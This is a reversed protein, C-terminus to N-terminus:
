PSATGRTPRISRCTLEGAKLIALIGVILEPSREACIAVPSGSRVGRVRLRHALRNSQRDLEGYSLSGTEGAVALAAPSRRAQEAFRAHVPRDAYETATENWEVLLQAREEEGLLPLDSLRTGPAACAGALLIEFHRSLRAMTATEFLDRNYEWSGFLGAGGESLSLTLDFKATEGAPPIPELTLGPLVLGERELSQLTFMVQFLPTRSPDRPPSLEEVVREFPVDQHQYAALATRRVASSLEGFPPDGACFTRLVLTNVFFGILGEIERHTRNAIPTGVAIDDQGTLRSLLATVGSLLTMFLTAGAARSLRELDATLGAPLNFRWVRGLERRVPPRQRDTPLELIALGSLTQRWYALEGELIEGVLYSRQWLAFDAYQLELEPLPSPKGAVRSAYLAGLERILVGMSWGDSVIHHMTLLAVHEPGSLRLLGTRLLPGRVLDFPRRAEEAALRRVEEDLAALGSLDLLPPRVRHAPHIVQVPRGGPAVAFTTRLSPHRRVLEGFTSELAGADLDGLLRVAVPMNYAPSGPQMQDLFWLREQAFSLPVPEGASHQHPVIRPRRFALERATADLSGPLSAGTTASRLVAVRRALGAVTPEEFLTRLPLEVAFADRVRSVVQTALLSHGGLEFFDGEVGVRPLALVEALIGALAEEIANRPAVYGSELDQRVFRPAPLARRDVKGSSTLPLEPLLVWAAPIMAETLRAELYSRLEPILRSGTRALLPDNGFRAWPLDPPAADVPLLSAAALRESASGRRRFVAEYDGEAGPRSWGLDVRYGLREGLELLEEPHIGRQAVAAVQQRLAGATAAVTPEAEEALLRAAVAGAVSRANPVSRLALLEPGGGSLRRGIEGRDLGERGVDIWPLDALPVRPGVSLVVQYRFGTLENDARGRKPRIEVGGVRPLRRALALFFGPDLLLEGDQLARAQAQLRLQALPLAPEARALEVAAYFAEALPLSRVDGVFVAGGDAVAAVTKELVEALYDASPFYQVVSNLVATDFSPGAIGSFDDATRLALEVQPLRGGLQRDLGALAALAFDTGLYHSCHPAVRHLLLGSGCGIELVRNPRLALIEAVTAEVWERMEAEPIPEGTFSSNWGVLNWEPDDTDPAAQGYTEDYLRRWDEVSASAAGEEPGAEREPVVYAVLRRDGPNDERVVAVAALVAPHAALVSEIEGLEIRFGRLKVQHDIRGLFELSGDLLTRALDGSRYLRSGPEAALPDPVFREATLGPRGLYGRALGVGGIWLEGPVGLPVTRLGSDLLHVRVNTLPRGLDPRRGGPLIEGATAAVTTETPGYATLLRRGPAWREALDLPCPEGGINLLRLDPFVPPPMVALLSPTLSVVTIRREALLAALPPGPMLEARSALHLAAGSTLAMAIESASVDFSPSMFQLVRDGGGLGFRRVLDSALNAFGRHTVGVGKPLGTSGSTYIVYALNGGDVGVRLPSGSQLRIEQRDADLRVLTRAGTEPPLTALWREETLLVPCGSDALLVSLRRPPYSPDLPLYAGGAKLVALVAEIAAPSRELCIGVVVEPGVGHRALHRALRNSRRDLEAYSVSAGGSCLAVADPTVAARVAFAEPVPLSALSAAEDNWERVLQQVEAPGLLGLEGVGCEPGALAASLLNELHRVWREVTALDFLDASYQLSAELREGREEVFLILDAKATATDMAAADLPAFTLGGVPLVEGPLSQFGYMVQCLPNRGLDRSVGLEEVLREFPLDQHAYAGLSTERVAQALQRFSADAALTTRLVLVNVFFGILPEIERHNRNAVASGVLIDPQGSCRALLASWATLVTMSLTIQRGRGFARLGGLLEGPWTAHVHGGRYSEVVPRPRDAPLELVEPAGALQRRWYGLQGELAEGDLWRRQWAAFDAYQVPLEPLPSPLGAAFAPYLASLERRLVGMSWGDFVIHHLTLLLAHEGEALRLLRARLLPGSELDFIRRSERRALAHLETGRLPPPLAGLDVLPLPLRLEPAVVQHPRGEREAFTTRLAEHRRSVENLSAALAAIDLAGWLRLGGYMNYFPNDPVLRHIFWLRQQAFSLALDRNRPVPELPPLPSRSAEAIRAALGSLTPAEFVARLPLEIGFVGRVRSVLQTALLSHGGLAFFEDRASVQGRGLLESWLGALVEEVPSQPPEWSERAAEAETMGAPTLSALARRDVKGSPTLPLAPLLVFASPVMYPPLRAAVLEWLESWAPSVATAAVVCALLRRRAGGEEQAVVAVERVAPHRALAAEVEGVEVRFGRIKVQGDVRGVFEVAGDARYRGLDGTRYLRAGPEGLNGAFPDPVFREATLEPRGLYGRAVCVGGVYIEGAVGVPVTGQAPDLLYVRAGALPRGIPPPRHDGSECSWSTVSITTETPGYRNVLAAPLRERFRVPLDAPVAEGGTVMQLLGRCSGLAEEELLVALMSPPFSAQHVGLEAILRLYTAAEVQGDAPALVMAGGAALPAFIELVSVDFSIPTKQLIRGGDPLDAAVQYLVRNTVARHAVVVGKPRGTSGSTYIVYAANDPDLRSPPPAPAGAAGPAAPGDLVIRRGRQFVPAAPLRPLLREQVLFIPDGDPGGSADELMFALREEPYAPDLPLYAGGAKLIGLLAVPLDLGRELFAGVVVEPGVGAGQLRWALRNARAELEGFTLREGAFIAAIRKPEAAAWSSVAAHLLGSRGAPPWGLPPANWEVTTAQRESPSLLPLEAVPRDPEAVAAALLLTFHRALRDITTPDFLDSGFGWQGVLEGGPGETLNLVLDFKAVATAVELQEVALGPLRIPEREANQLAFMVQFLPSYALNRQPQLEEVLREFPVDQHAFAGLATTRARDVLGGFGRGEGPSASTRLRLALTNVFFGILGELETRDRGAVPSGVVLDEEGTSRGLLAALGALLTMFLSAGRRRGLEGLRAVLEPALRAPRQGGRYSQVPPRPRDLPLELLSPVGALTRRWYDLQEDLRQGTLWQRQWAAFDVYQIPLEPLDVPQGLVAAAYLRVMERILIGMSWGDSVIHHVTLLALHEREGLRVLRARLLPGRELDFPAGASEAAVRWAEAERHDVPLASLNIWPAPPAAPEALLQAPRGDVARFTTRLAAHRRVAEALSAALAEPDLRGTLRLAAPVNYTAQGAELQDLFWLREQAFSLPLPEGTRWPTPAIRRLGLSERPYGLEEALQWAPEGLFDQDLEARWRDAAAPDIDKHQLLKFDGLMRSEAHIGDTMRSRTDRYPQAMTPDYPLGLAACLGSLVREPDRVLDEFRLRMQREAPVGRLLADINRNCVVWVMEALERRSFPHARRFFVQELKGEEFSRVVAHPHRLLHIYFPRDFTQEARALVAADLTYAPTKDVLLRDGLWGQMRRYFAQVSTGDREAEEVRATVEELSGGDIEMLARLLGERWYRDRGSLSAAREAMTNFTLLELEPPAFLRPHGALLVRLLTSGSRPPSLLFVARPNPPELPFPPLPSILGIMQSIRAEDVRTALAERDETEVDGLDCLIGTGWRRLVAERHHDVLYNAMQRVTPADFIAVVHVIEGLAEQLRNVLVAGRISHGGLEFFSDDLGVREAKLVEAWLEALFREFDNRPEVAPVEPEDEGAAGPERRLLERHDVKGNGTLPLADLTVLGSPLMYDPLWAAAAQRLGALTLGEGERPVVYAVLSKDEGEGRVLVVVERVQPHRALVTEIEGLEIRFGRIKVQHDIRGLYDLEGGPRHRALDGSCYLRAGPPGFPDPMFREATREPRGAYGLALGAGGVCIEGAVGVPVPSGDADLLHVSLDPIPQGVSSGSGALDAPTLKRYTVHVTTETIGYMNVLRPLEPAHRAWWPALAQIELAEGGFIVLRLALPPEGWDLAAEEARVLQRFASPTQNLVTVGEDALLRRLGEPSRSLWYPVVVLRGGFALAGWIEWVSFDFAYSHFLTWVDAPGFGFWPDTAALLRSVNAHSVVVGKPQGTSGSTYIVYAPSGPEVSVGPPVPPQSAIAASEREDDLCLRHVGPPIKELTEAAPGATVLLAAGSDALTYLLRERPASPDLPVYAGGAKLVALLAVILDLSRELCLAVPDAPRIGRALLHRALRNARGDLEAYSLAEVGHVVAFARPRAAVQREFEHHLCSTEPVGALGPNWETLLQHREGPSLLPLDSFPKEPASLAGALLTALHGAWRAVTARDFLDTSWIWEGVPEGPEREFVNLLLDFKATEVGMARGSVALTEVELGALRLPGGPTNHLSLLVQFLPPVARDRQPALEEVLREFPLDQHAYAGVAAARAGEILTRFTARGQGDPEGFSKLDLRLVLTNVFFGILGELESRTRGAIPSGVALDRQGSLRVLLASFGALLVMFPTGGAEGALRALGGLLGAPLPVVCADGRFTQVAPRPRDYPLELVPVGALRGRWYALQSELLEGSMRERQWAAFDAYQVPLEPLSSPRGGGETSVAGYFAALEHVLLGMSWGDAVIHHLTLLARHEDRGAGGGHVGEGGNAGEAGNSDVGGGALWLLTTRLLPGSGLDFPHAIEARGLRVAEGQRVAGPLARLDVVPLPVPLEPRVVQVPQGGRLAFTTRLVAHRRVIEALAHRLAAVDLRGTLRLAAPMHYTPADPDLRTLFWIREQGFSLLLDGEEPLRPIAAPRSETGLGGAPAPRRERRRLRLLLLERQEPSLDRLNAEFPNM